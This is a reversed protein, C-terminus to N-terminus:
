AVADRILLAVIVWATAAAALALLAGGLRLLVDRESLASPDPRAAPV